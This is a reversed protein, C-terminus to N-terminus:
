CRGLEEVVGATTAALARGVAQFVEDDLEGTLEDMFFKKVDIALACGTGPFTRNVWRSLHGGQFRVNERVDLRRGGADQDSLDAVFRKAVSAFRDRDLTGTGVNVEPNGAPDAPRGDRRHDYSHLDYVVFAGAAAETRRLVGELDAYFQDYLVLSHEVVEQSPEGRWCQLGWADEPRRYVAKDRPRNLDVEFRSRHVVLRTPSVVTWGDTYPDEERLRSAEDLVMLAAVEPRLEHGAHVACAVLPSDGEHLEWPAM